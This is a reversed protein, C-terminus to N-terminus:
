IHEHQATRPEAAHGEGGQSRSPRELSRCECQRRGTRGRLVAITHGAGPYTSRAGSLVGPLYYVVTCYRTLM